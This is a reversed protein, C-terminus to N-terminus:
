CRSSPRVKPSPMRPPASQGAAYRETMTKIAGVVALFPEGGQSLRRVGAGILENVSPAGIGVMMNVPLEVESTLDRSPRCTSCAPFSSATPVPRAIRVHEGNRRTSARRPRITPVSGSMAAPTSSSRSAAPQRRPARPACVTRRSTSMACDARHQQPRRRRHQRRRCRTRDRRRGLARRRVPDRRTRGRPRRHRARRGSRLDGGGAVVRRRVAGTRRGLGGISAVGFSTTGIAPAGAAAMVTASMQDWANVLQLPRDASHLEGFGCPVNTNRPVHESMAQVYFWCRQKDIAADNHCLERRHRCRRAFRDLRRVWFSRRSAVLRFTRSAATSHRM